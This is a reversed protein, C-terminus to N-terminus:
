AVTEGASNRWEMPKYVLHDAILQGALSGARIPEFEHGESLGTIYRMDSDEPANADEIGISYSGDSELTVTAIISTSTIDEAHM